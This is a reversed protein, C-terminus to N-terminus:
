NGITWLSRSLEYIPLGKTTGAKAGVSGEQFGGHLITPEMSYFSLKLEAVDRSVDRCCNTINQQCNMYRVQEHGSYAAIHLPTFFVADQVNVYAGHQLLIDVAQAHFFLSKM